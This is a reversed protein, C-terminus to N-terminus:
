LLKADAKDDLWRDLWEASRVRREVREPDLPEPEADEVLNIAALRYFDAEDMPAPPPIRVVGDVDGTTFALTYKPLQQMTAMLVTPFRRDLMTADSNSTRFTGLLGTNALVAERQESTLQALHQNALRLRIGFKRGEALMQAIAPSPLKQWEDVFVDIQQSLDRHRRASAWLQELLLAGLATSGGETLVSQPLSVIISRGELAPQMTVDTFSTEIIRRVTPDGILPDLKSILWISSNGSDPRTIMPMVEVNLARALKSDGIRELLGDRFTSDDPDLLDPIRTLPLSGHPDRVLVEVIIPLARTMVPGFYSSPMDDWLQHRIVESLRRAWESEGMGACPRTVNWRLHGHDAGFDYVIPEIGHRLATSAARRALDGHPCFVVVTAGRRYAEDIANDLVTTKGSGSAGLLLVHPPTVVALLDGLESVTMRRVQSGLAAVTFPGALLRAITPIDALLEGELSPEDRAIVRLAARQAADAGVLAALADISTRPATLTAEARVRVMEDEGQPLILRQLAVSFRMPANGQSVATWLFSATATASLTEETGLAFRVSTMDAAVPMPRPTTTEVNLWPAIARIITAATAATHEAASETMCDFRCSFHITERDIAEYHFSVDAPDSLGMLAAVILRFCLKTQEPDITRNAILSLTRTALPVVPDVTPPQWEPRNVHQAKRHLFDPM